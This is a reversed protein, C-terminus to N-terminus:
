IHYMPVKLKAKEKHREALDQVTTSELVQKTARRVEEWVDRIVCFDSRSCVRPDDVCKVPALSGELTEIVQSIKIQDPPKALTVGGGAGRISRVIGAKILPSVLQELYQVPIAQRRAIEKLPIPSGTQYLAMDLLARTGYEGKTSLRM